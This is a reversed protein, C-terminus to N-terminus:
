SGTPGAYSMGGAQRLIDLTEEVTFIPTTRITRIHGPMLAGLSGASVAANDPAELIAFGDYEGMSYYLEVLRGGIREALARLPVRRDQPNNALTQWAETTYTFDIRYLPM